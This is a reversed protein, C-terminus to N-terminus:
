TSPNATKPRRLESVLGRYVAATVIVTRLYRFEKDPLYCSAEQETFLLAFRSMDPFGEWGCPQPYDRPFDPLNTERSGTVVSGFPSAHRGSRDEPNVAHLV